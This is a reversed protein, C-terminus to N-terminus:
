SKLLEAIVKELDAKESNKFGRKIARVRGESDVVFSTPMTPLKFAKAAEGSSDFVVQFQPDLRKLAKEAAARDQDVSIAVINLGEKGYRKTLENMFPFSERCPPCWSAWFDIYTVKGKLEALALVEGAANHVSVLPLTDNIELARSLRPATGVLVLALVM